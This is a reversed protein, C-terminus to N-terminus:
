EAVNASAIAADIAAQNNQLVTERAARAAGELATHRAALRQVCAILNDIENSNKQNSYRKVLRVSAIALAERETMNNAAAHAVLATILDDIKPNM